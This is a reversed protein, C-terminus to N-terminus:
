VEFLVQRISCFTAKLTILVPKLKYNKQPSMKAIKLGVQHSVKVFYM